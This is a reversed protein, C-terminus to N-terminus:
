SIYLHWLFFACLGLVVIIGGWLAIDKILQKKNDEKAQLKIKACYKQYEKLSERNKTRYLEYNIDEAIIRGKTIAEAQQQLYEIKTQVKRLNELLARKYVDWLIYLDDKGKLGYCMYENALSFTLKYEKMVGKDKYTFIACAYTDSSYKVGPTAGVVVGGNLSIGALVKTTKHAIQGDGDFRFGIINEVPCILQVQGAHYFGCVKKKDDYFFANTADTQPFIIETAGIETLTKKAVKRRDKLYGIYQVKCKRNEAYGNDIDGQNLNCEKAPGFVAREKVSVPKEKSESTEIEDNMLYDFSVDFHKALWKIRHIEPQVEGTEWKYVTQRSVEMENALEEQSMGARKRLLLIKENLKM